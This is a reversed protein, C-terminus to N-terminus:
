NIMFVGLVLCFYAPLLTGMLSILLSFRKLILRLICLDGVCDYSPHVSVSCSCFLYLFFFSFVLRQYLPVSCLAAVAFYALLRWFDMLWAGRAVISPILLIHSIQRASSCLFFHARKLLFSSFAALPSVDGACHQLTNVTWFARGPCFVLRGFILSVFSLGAVYPSRFFIPPLQCSFHFFRQARFRPEGYLITIAFFLCFTRM